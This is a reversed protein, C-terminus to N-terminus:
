RAPERRTSGTDTRTLIVLVLTAAAIVASVTFTTAISVSGTILNALIPWTYGAYALVYFIGTLMSRAEAPAVAPIALLGGTLLFGYAAGLLVAAAILAGLNGTADTLAGALHGLGLIVLGWAFPAKIGRAAARRAAPQVAVGTLLALAAVAGSSLVGYAGFDMKQSLVVIAASVSAFVWPATPLILTLFMRSRLAEAIGTGGARGTRQSPERVSKPATEPTSWIVPIILVMLLIHVAYPLVMPFPLWQALAGTLLPGVAFGGTLAITTLVAASRTARSRENLENLWVTGPGFAAGAAFGVIIRGIVLLSFSSGAAMLVISGVISVGVVARMLNRRGWRDSLSAGMLLSPFLGLAYAGFMVSTATDSLDAAYVLLMPTFMNAGWGVAFMAGAPRLPAATSIQANM